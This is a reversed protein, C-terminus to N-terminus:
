KSRGAARELEPYIPEAYLRLSAKWFPHGRKALVHRNMSAVSLRARPTAFLNQSNAVSVVFGVVTSSALRTSFNKGIATQRPQQPRVPRTREFRKLSELPTLIM